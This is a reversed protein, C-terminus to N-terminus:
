QVALFQVGDLSWRCSHTYHSYTTVYGEPTVQVLGLAPIQQNGGQPDAYQDWAATPAGSQDALLLVSFTLAGSPDPWMAQPLQLVPSSSGGAGGIVMGRLRVVGLQDFAYGPVPPATSSTLGTGAEAPATWGTLLTADTWAIPPSAVYDTPVAFMWGMGYPQDLIWTEGALPPGSKGRTFRASTRVQQGNQLQVLAIGGTVELVFGVAYDIGNVSSTHAQKVPFAPSM